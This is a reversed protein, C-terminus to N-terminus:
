HISSVVKFYLWDSYIYAAKVGADKPINFIARVRYDGKTFEYFAGLIFQRIVNINVTLTDYVMHYGRVGHDDVSNEQRIFNKGKLKELEIFVDPERISDLDSFGYIFGQLLPIRKTSDATSFIMKIVLDDFKLVRKTKMELSLKVPTDKQAICDKCALGLVFIIVVKMMSFM